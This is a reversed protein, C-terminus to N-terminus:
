WLDKICKDPIGLLKKKTYYNLAEEITKITHPLIYVKLNTYLFYRSFPVGMAPLEIFYFDEIQEVLKFNPELNINGKGVQSVGFYNLGKTNDESELM